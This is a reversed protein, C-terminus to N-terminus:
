KLNMTEIIKDADYKFEKTTPLDIYFENDKLYNEKIFTKNHISRGYGFNWDRTLGNCTELWKFGFRRFMSPHAVPFCLKQLDMHEKFDKVDVSGFSYEEDVTACFFLIKLNVRYGNLELRNIVNLVAIGSDIFEQAEVSCNQTINYVISVAKIKQPTAQTYIMSNPLGMIANPVHAAYGVVGTSTRRKQITETKRLGAVVGAKIQPLVETYGHEFLDNAEEWDRTGTFSKDGSTSSDKGSMVSNNPRNNIVNLMQHISTFHEQIINPKRKAM